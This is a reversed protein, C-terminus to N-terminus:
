ESRESWAQLRTNWYIKNTPRAPQGGYEAREKANAFVSIPKIKNPDDISVWEDDSM